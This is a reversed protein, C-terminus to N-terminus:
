LNITVGAAVTKPAPAAQYDPDFHSDEARWLLINLNNAYLFFNLDRFPLRSGPSKNLTYQLRIDQIRINDAKKVHIAAYTYFQDRMNSAPYIMSPVTTNQEDGPKQWRHAYEPMSRWQAFLDTYGMVPERFYYKLRYTLNTSLSFGKWSLTNTIFGYYLPFSSGHFVQNSISDAAIGIYDKSVQGNLYGQPDGTLPDLGAWRYSSLGYIVRGAVMNSVGGIVVDSAKLATKYVKTIVTKTYTLGLATRWQVIGSTNITTLNFEFGRGKLSGSNVTYDRIGTTVDFPIPAIIDTSTKRFAELSGTIRKNLMGFDIGANTITVEEWRLDPNPADIMQAYPLGTLDTSGANLITAKGSLNNNVNGMYGYSVRMRLYPMGTLSYFAEKSLEWSGGVSWLPKWRNNTNVGFINAGDRRASGYLTYRNKYTYSASGIFSIFRSTNAELVSNGEPIKGSIPRDYIPYNAAYNLGSTYTSYEPSYGYLRNEQIRGTSNSIDVAAFASLKHHDKWNKSISLQARGYSSVSQGAATRLIGGLPLLRNVENGNIQTFQNILNRTTYTRISQLDFSNEQNIMIQYKLELRLWDTIHYTTGLNLRALSVKRSNNYSRIEELPRYQWDLLLGRGATDLYAMRIDKSIPLYNGQEDALQTYPAIKNPLNFIPRRDDSRSLNIGAKLEWQNVPRITVISNVTYQNYPRSGQFESISQNYGLSLNYNVLSNGGSLNIYHQLAIPHRYLYKDMQLRLDIAALTNIKENLEAESILNRSRQDLLEVVPSVVPRDNINNLMSAYYGKNYLFREVEIFESNTMQPNFYVDPKAQVTVNSSYNIRLPQNYRGRKTTVVIVGNGAKVGWVSAAAADKLVTINLIDNPNITSLNQTYPFNDVIIVPDKINSVGLFTSVGRVQIPPQDKKNFVLGTVTGDLRELIGMGARRAYAASDLQSFSGVMREKSIREYGSSITIEELEKTAIVLNIVIKDLPSNVPMQKSQYGVHSLVLTDPLKTVSIHFNGARDSRAFTKSGQAYITIAELAQKTDSSRVKGSIIIPAQQAYTSLIPLVIGMIFFLSSKM